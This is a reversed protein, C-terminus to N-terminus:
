LTATVMEGSQHLPERERSCPLKTIGQHTYSLTHNVTSLINEEVALVKTKYNGTARM